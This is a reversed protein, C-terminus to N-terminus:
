LRAEIKNRMAILSFIILAMAPFLMKNVHGPLLLYFTGWVAATIVLGLLAPIRNAKDRCQDVLIVIFLAAMSFDIGTTDFHIHKGATAGIVSGTIWYCQDFFAICFLYKKRGADPYPCQLQLAYTEDTLACALYWRLYWPYRKFEEIFPLGYACYRVNILLAFVAIMGLSYNAANKVMEVAAFQMSSSITTASVIGAFFPEAQPIQTTLLIGWAAGMSLYGMLVPLSAIFARRVISQQM